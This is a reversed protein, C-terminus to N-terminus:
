GKQFHSSTFGTQYYFHPPNIEIPSENKAYNARLKTDYSHVITFLAPELIQNPKPFTNTNQTLNKTANECPIQQKSNHNYNTQRQFNSTLKTLDYSKPPQFKPQSTAQDPLNKDTETKSKSGKNLDAWKTDVKSILGDKGQQYLDSVVTMSPGMKDGQALLREKGITNANDNLISITNGSKPINRSNDMNTNSSNNVLISNPVKGTLSTLGKTNTGHNEKHIESYDKIGLANVNSPGQKPLMSNRVGLNTDESNHKRFDRPNNSITTTTNLDDGPEEIAANVKQRSKNLNPTSNGDSVRSNM